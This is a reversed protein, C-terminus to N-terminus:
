AFSIAEGDDGFFESKVRIVQVRRGDARRVHQLEDPKASLLLGQDRLTRLTTRLTVKTWGMRQKLVDPKFDIYELVGSVPRERGLSDIETMLDKYIKWGLLPVADSQARAIRNDVRDEDKLGAVIFAAAPAGHYYNRL